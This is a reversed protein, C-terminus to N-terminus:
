YFVYRFRIFIVRLNKKLVTAESLCRLWPLSTVGAELKIKASHSTRLFTELTELTEPIDKQLAQLLTIFIAEAGKVTIRTFLTITSM